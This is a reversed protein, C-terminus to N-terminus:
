HKTLGAEAPAWDPTVASMLSSSTKRFQVTHSHNSPTSTGTGAPSRTIDDAAGKSAHQSQLVARAIM